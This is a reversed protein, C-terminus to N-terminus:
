ISYSLLFDRTEEVSLPKKLGLSIVITYWLIKLDMCWHYSESAMRCYTIELMLRDTDSIIERGVLQPAGTMGSPTRFRLYVNPNFEFLSAIVSEPLPRNGVISMDGMLVHLIQPIETLTFREILRGVPTYLSSDPPTNLFRVNNSIPVTARNYLKDANRVMTRFKVMSIIHHSVRRKSVYFVPRGDTLWIALYCTIIAPLWAVASLLALIVDFLRKKRGLYSSPIASPQVLPCSYNNTNGRDANGITKEMDTVGANFKSNDWPGRWEFSM